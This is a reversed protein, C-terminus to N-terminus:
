RTRNHGLTRLENWSKGIIKSGRAVTRRCTEQPKDHLRGQVIININLSNHAFHTIQVFFTCRRSIKINLSNPAFYSKDFLLRLFTKNRSIDVNLLTLM